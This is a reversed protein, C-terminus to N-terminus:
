GSTATNKEISDERGNNVNININVATESTDHHLYKNLKILPVIKYSTRSCSTCVKKTIFRVYIYIYIYTNKVTYILQDPLIFLLFSLANVAAHWPFMGRAMHICGKDYPNRGKYHAGNKSQGLLHHSQSQGFRRSVNVFRRTMAHCIATLSTSQVIYQSAHFYLCHCVTQRLLVTILNNKPKPLIMM